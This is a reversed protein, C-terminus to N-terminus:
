HRVLKSSCCVNDLGLEIKCIEVAGAYDPFLDGHTIKKTELFARCDDQVKDPMVIGALIIKENEVNEKRRNVFNSINTEIETGDLAKTFRGKQSKLRINQRDDCTETLDLFEIFRGESITESSITGGTKKCKKKLKTKRMLTQAVRNLTYVVRYKSQEKTDKKYFAFYAAIYPSETWDLLPTLLGYHQGIAWIEDDTMGNINPNSLEDLKQKFKKLIENLKAQRNNIKPFKRDFSSKLPWNKRQGRWIYDTNNNFIKVVEHFEGWSALTLTMVGNEYSRNEFDTFDSFKLKRYKGMTPAM